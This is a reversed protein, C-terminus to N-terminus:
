LNDNVYQQFLSTPNDVVTYLDSGNYPGGTIEPHLAQYAQHVLTPNDPNLAGAMVDRYAVEVFRPDRGEMKPSEYFDIYSASSYPDTKAFDEKFKPFDVGFGGGSEPVTGTAGSYYETDSELTGGVAQLVGTAGEGTDTGGSTAWSLEVGSAASLFNLNNQYVQEIQKLAINRDTSTAFDTSRLIASVDSNYQNGLDSASAIYQQRTTADMEVNAIDAKFEMEMQARQTAADQSYAELRLQIDGQVGLAELNEVQAQRQLASQAAAQQTELASTGAFEQEKLATTGYLQADQQAIPLAARIRERETAGVAMSSSLLGMRQAEERARVDAQRLYPSDKGLLSMMQGSVTAEPTIYQGTTAGPPRAEEIKGLATTPVDYLAGEPDLPARPEGTPEPLVGPDTTTPPKQTPSVYPDVPPLFPNDNIAM